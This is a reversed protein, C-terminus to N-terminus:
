DSVGMNNAILKWFEFTTMTSKQKIYKDYTRILIEQEDDSIDENSLTPKDVNEWRLKCEQPSRDGVQRVYSLSHKNTSKSFANVLKMVLMIGILSGTMLISLWTMKQLIKCSLKLTMTVMLLMSM